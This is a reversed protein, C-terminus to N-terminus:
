LKSLQLFGFYQQLKDTAMSKYYAVLTEYTDYYVRCFKHTTRPLSLQDELKEICSYLYDRKKRSAAEEQQSNNNNRYQNAAKQLTSLM